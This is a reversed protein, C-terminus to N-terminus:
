KKTAQGELMSGRTLFKLLESDGSLLITTKEDLIKKYAELTRLLEYFAPDKLHAQGYIKIAQAEAEGRVKEAEAYAAGLLITRDRDATARITMAKADGESRYQRAMRAREKRMREFVSDRVQSPLGIRKIRLDVIEIGYDKVGEACRAAVNGMLQDLPRDEPKGAAAAGGRASLKAVSVLVDLESKSVEAALRSWVLDHLRAEGGAVDNVTKLFKEPDSVRWCVFVDLNVNKKESSLFESPRPNYIQLRRDIRLASQYPLKFHLGAEDGDKNLTRIPMGFQTVIVCETEDVFVVSAWAALGVLLVVALIWPRKM